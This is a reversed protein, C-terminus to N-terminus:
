NGHQRLWEAKADELYGFSEEIGELYDALREMAGAFVGIDVLKFAASLSPRMQDDPDSRKAKRRAYRFNQGDPDHEHIQDIYSDVGELEEIPFPPRLALGAEVLNLLPRAAQWLELLSHGGLAKLDEKTLERDLLRSACRIIAKLLLEVHHRYLYVIPYVVVDQDFSTKWVQNALHHAARRFGTSYYWDIELRSSSTKPPGNEIPGFLRDGKSPPKLPPGFTLGADDGM